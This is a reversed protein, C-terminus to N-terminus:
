PTKLQRRHKVISSEIYWHYVPVNFKGALEECQNARRHDPDDKPLYVEQIMGAALLIEYFPHSNTLLATYPCFEWFSHFSEPDIVSLGKIALLATLQEYCFSQRMSELRHSEKVSSKLVYARPEPLRRILGLAWHSVGQRIFESEQKRKGSVAIKILEDIDELTVYYDM